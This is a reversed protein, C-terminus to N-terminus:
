SSYVIHTEVNTISNDDDNIVQKATHGFASTLQHM